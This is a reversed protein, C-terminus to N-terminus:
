LCLEMKVTGGTGARIGTGASYGGLRKQLNVAEGIIVQGSAVLRAQHHRVPRQLLDTACSCCVCEPGRPPDCVRPFVGWFVRRCSHDGKAFPGTRADGVCIKGVQSANTLSRRGASPDSRFLPVEIM